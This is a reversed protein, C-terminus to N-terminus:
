LYIKILPSKLNSTFLVQLHISKIRMNFDFAILSRDVGRGWVPDGRYMGASVRKESIGEVLFDVSHPSPDKGRVAM